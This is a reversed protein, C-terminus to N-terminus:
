INYLYKVWILFKVGWFQYINIMQFWLYCTKHVNDLVSFIIHAIFVVIKLTRLSAFYCIKSFIPDFNSMKIFKKKLRIKKLESFLTFIESQYGKYYLIRDRFTTSARLHINIKLSNIDIKCWDVYSIDMNIFNVLFLIHQGSFFWKFSYM